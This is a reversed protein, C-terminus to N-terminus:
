DFPSRYGRLSGTQEIPAKGRRERQASKQLSKNESEINKSTRAFM